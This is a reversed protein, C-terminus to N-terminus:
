LFFSVQSSPFSHMMVVSPDPCSTAASPLALLSQIRALHYVHYIMGFVASLLITPVSGLRRVRVLRVSDKLSVTWPVTCSRHRRILATLIAIKLRRARITVSRFAASNRKAEEIRTTSM